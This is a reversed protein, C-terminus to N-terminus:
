FIRALSKHELPKSITLHQLLDILIQMHKTFEAKQKHFVNEQFRIRSGRGLYHISIVSWHASSSACRATDAELVSYENAAIAMRPGCHEDARVCAGTARHTWSNPVKM